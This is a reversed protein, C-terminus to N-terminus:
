KEISTYVVPYDFDAADGVAHEKKSDGFEKEYQSELSKIIRLTMEKEILTGDRFFTVVNDPKKYDRYFDHISKLFGPRSKEVDDLSNLHDAEKSEVSIGIVKFDLEGDDIMPLCGLIKLQIISGTDYILDKSIDVCDLPDEDGFLKAEEDNLDGYLEILPNHNKSEFTRPMAGYNLPYGIFENTDKIFRPKGNKIDQVIPNHDKKLSIEFKASTCRPIEVVMNVIDPRSEDRRLPISHLFSAPSLDQRLLQTVGGKKLLRLIQRSSGSASM